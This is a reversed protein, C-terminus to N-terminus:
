GKHIPKVISDCKSKVSRKKRSPTQMPRENREEKRFDLSYTAYLYM